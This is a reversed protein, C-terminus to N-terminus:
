FLKGGGGLAKAGIFGLAIGTLFKKQAAEAHAQLEGRAGNIASVADALESEKVLVFKNERIRKLAEVAASRREEENGEADSLALNALKKIEVLEPSVEVAAM